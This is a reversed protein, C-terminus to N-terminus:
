SHLSTIMEPMKLQKSVCALLVVVQTVEGKQFTFGDDEAWMDGQLSLPGTEAVKNDWHSTFKKVKPLMKEKNLEM